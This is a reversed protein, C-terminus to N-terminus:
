FCRARGYRRGTVPDTDLLAAGGGGRTYKLFQTMSDVQDDYKGNPFARLENRFDPWWDASQPFRVKGAELFDLHPLLRELKTGSPQKLLPLNEDDFEPDFRMNNWLTITSHTKELFVFYPRWKRRHQEIRSRLNAMNIRERLVDLLYWVENKYGWTTCVSYDARAHDEVATDWSQLVWTCSKASPPEDVHHLKTIDIVAGDPLVPRQQYQAAFAVRGMEARKRDLLASDYRNSDLIDGPRREWTRGGLLPLRQEEESIVPLDLHDYGGKELLFAPLDDEHLRQMLAVVSGNSPNDLRSMLADTYYRRVQERSAEQVADQAKMLDDIVILDAGFGTTAGGLTVSYRAGGKTSRLENRSSTAVEMAPFLDRYWDSKVVRAFNAAHERALDETYTAVMIKARPDNGIVWAPLAVAAAISKLHRPPLTVLLRGGDKKAARQLKVAMAELYEAPPMDRGHLEQFVRRLFFYFVAKQAARAKIAQSTM